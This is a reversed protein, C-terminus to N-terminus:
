SVAILQPMIAGRPGPVLDDIQGNIRINFVNSIRPDSAYVIQAVRTTPLTESIGLNMVFQRISQTVSAKIQNAIVTDSVTLSISCTIDCTQVIPGSVAFSAGIPRVLDIQESVLSLLEQTPARTGDDIVIIFHGPRFSGDSDQNEHIRFRLGQRSSQIAYSIADSTAKSRSNIYDIFRRRLAEDSEADMGGSTPQVNEVADLGAVSSTLLTISGTGVNGVSGPIEARIPLTVSQQGVPLLYGSLEPVWHGHSPDGVVLFTLDGSSSRVRTRPLIEVTGIDSNRSFAAYGTAYTAPLRFLAFDAMWTDLANGRATGARSADLVDAILVQLWLAVSAHAELLSRIVSGVSLDLVQSAGGQITAAMDQVYQAFTRTALRM